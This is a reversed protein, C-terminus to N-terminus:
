LRRTIEFPASGRKQMRRSYLIVGGIGLLFFVIGSLISMGEGAQAFKAGAYGGFFLLLPLLYVLAALGLVQRTAGEILVREGPQAGAANHATVYLTQTELGGCGGCKACDHGCASRRTVEIEAMNDPLLRKLIGQQTMAEPERAKRQTLIWSQNTVSETESKWRCNTGWRLRSLLRSSLFDAPYAGM